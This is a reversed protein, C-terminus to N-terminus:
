MSHMILEETSDPIVSLMRTRSSCPLCSIRRIEDGSGFLTARLFQVVTTKGSRPPGYIINLGDSLATLQLDKCAGFRDIRLGTIQM